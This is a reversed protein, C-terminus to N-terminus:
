GQPELPGNELISKMYTEIKQKEVETMYALVQKTSHESCFLLNEAIKKLTKESLRTHNILGLQELM